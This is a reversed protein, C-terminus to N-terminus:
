WFSANSTGSVSCASVSALRLAKKSSMARPSNWMSPSTPAYTSALRSGNSDNRCFGSGMFVRMPPHKRDGHEQIGAKAPIVRSSSHARM